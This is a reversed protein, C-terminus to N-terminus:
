NFFGDIDTASKVSNFCAEQLVFIYRHAILNNNGQIMSEANILPLAEIELNRRDTLM